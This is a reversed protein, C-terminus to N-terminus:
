ATKANKNKMYYLIKENFVPHPSIQTYLLMEQLSPETRFLKENVRRYERGYSYVAGRYFLLSATDNARCYLHVM